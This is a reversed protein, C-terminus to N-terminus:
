LSNGTPPKQETNQGPANKSLLKEFFDFVDFNLYGTEQPMEDDDNADDFDGSSQGNKKRKRERWRRLNAKEREDKEKKAREARTEEEVRFPPPPSYPLVMVDTNGLLQEDGEELLEGRMGTVYTKPRNKLTQSLLNLLGSIKFHGQAEKEHALEAESKARLAPPPRSGRLRSIRRPHGNPLQDLNMWDSQGSRLWVDALNVEPPSLLSEVSAEGSDGDRHIVSRAMQASPLDEPECESPSLLAGLGALMGAKSSPSNQDANSPSYIPYDIGLYPLPLPFQALSILQDATTIPAAASNQLADSQASTPLMEGLSGLDLAPPIDGEGSSGIGNIPDYHSM